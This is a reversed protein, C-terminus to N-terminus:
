ALLMDLWKPFWWAYHHRIRVQQASSSLLAQELRGMYRVLNGSPVTCKSKFSSISSLLESRQRVVWAETNQGRAVSHNEFVGIAMSFGHDMFAMLDRGSLPLTLEESDIAYTTRLRNM